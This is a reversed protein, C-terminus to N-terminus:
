DKFAQKVPLTRVSHYCDCGVLIIRSDTQREEGEGEMGMQGLAAKM